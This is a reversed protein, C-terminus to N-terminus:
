GCTKKDGMTQTKVVEVLEGISKVLPDPEPPDRKCKQKLSGADSKARSTTPVQTQKPPAPTTGRHACSTPVNDSPVKTTHVNHPTVMPIPHKHNFGENGCSVTPEFLFELLESNALPANRFHTALPYKREDNYVLQAFTTKGLGGIGVMPYISVDEQSNVNNLLMKIVHDKEEDRGYVQPETLISSTEQKQHLEIRRDVVGDKLHFMSREDAIENFRERLDDMRKAIKRRFTI